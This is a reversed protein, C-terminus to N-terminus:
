KVTSHSGVLKEKIEPKIERGFLNLYNQVEDAFTIGKENARREIMNKLQNFILAEEAQDTQQIQDTYGRDKARTKLGFIIAATDGSYVRRVLQAELVDKFKEHPQIIEIKAQFRLNVRSRSRMWRYFTQRSIGAYECSASINGLTDEFAKLFIRRAVSMQYKQGSRKKPVIQLM